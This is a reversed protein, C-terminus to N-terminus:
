KNRVIDDGSEAATKNSRKKENEEGSPRHPFKDPVTEAKFNRTISTFTGILALVHFNMRLKAVLPNNDEM